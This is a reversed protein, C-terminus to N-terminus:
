HCLSRRRRRSERFVTFYNDVGIHLIGFPQIDMTAPTWYTTSPTASAMSSWMLAGILGVFIWRKKNM